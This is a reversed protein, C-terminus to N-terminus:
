AVQEGRFPRWFRPQWLLRLAKIAVFLKESFHLYTRGSLVQFGQKRIKTGIARYVEGAILICFRSRLPLYALGQYGRQYYDDAISLYHQVLDKLERPTESSQSSLSELCVKSNQRPLYWRGSEYDQRIDRCINTLQMAIGLNIAASRASPDKCGLLPCMMVGVVGAVLYCYTLLDQDTEIVGGEADFQAGALLERLHRRKVGFGEVERVANQFDSERQLDEVDAILRTLSAKALEPNQEDACDDIYRCIQYLRAIRRMRDSSFFFSAFYFSKGKEAMVQTPETRLTQIM